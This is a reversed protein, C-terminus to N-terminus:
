TASKWCPPSPPSCSRPRVGGHARARRGRAPAPRARCVLVSAHARRLGVAVLQLYAHKGVDSGVIRPDLAIRAMVLLIIAGCLNRLIPMPQRDAILAIGPVMLALAVTLWGKELAFTLALALGAVAGVAFIASAERIGEREERQWLRLAALAFVGALALAMLAFPISRGYAALSYYLAILIVIPTLVACAAWLMSFELRQSREQAWYGVGGFVAATGAAFLLHQGRGHDDLDAARWRDGDVLQRVECRLHRGQKAYFWIM